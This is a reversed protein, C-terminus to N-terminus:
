FLLYIIILTIPFVITFRVGEQIEVYKKEKKLKEIEEKTLGVIEKGALVDGEKLKDTKIRKKMNKEIVRSYLYIIPLSGVLILFPLYISLLMCLVLFALCINKYKEFELVFNKRIKKNLLGYIFIYILSYVGGIIFVFLIFLFPYFPINFSPLLFGIGGLIWADGNGWFRLKFLLLGFFLFFLGVLLSNLFYFSDKYILSIMFWYFLGLSIMLAPIEEFVDSTKLDYLGAFLTLALTILFPIEIM